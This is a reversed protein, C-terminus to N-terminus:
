SAKRELAAIRAEHEEVKTRVSLNTRLMDGVEHVASALAVLETSLRVETDTQRQELRELRENTKRVEDRIDKLVELTLSPVDAM